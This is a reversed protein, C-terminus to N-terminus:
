KDHNKKKSVEDSTKIGMQMYMYKEKAFCLVENTIIM